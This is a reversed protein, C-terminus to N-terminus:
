MTKSKKLRSLAKRAAEPTMGTLRAIEAGSTVGSYFLEKVKDASSSTPEPFEIEPTKGEVVDDFDVDSPEISTYYPVTQEFGDDLTVTKVDLHCAFSGAGKPLYNGKVVGLYRMDRVKDYVFGIGARVADLYSHAGSFLSRASGGGKNFHHVILCATGTSQAIKIFSDMMGRVQTPNNGSEIGSFSTIPDIVMLAPKVQQIVSHLKKAEKPFKPIVPSGANGGWFLTHIRSMDAGAAKFRPQQETEWADESTLYLVNRPDGHLDGPLTGRTVQAAVHTAFLSKGEGGAGGLLTPAEALLVNEWLWTRRRSTISDASVIVWEDESTPSPNQSHNDNESDEAPTPVPPASESTGYLPSLQSTTRRVLYAYETYPFGSNDLYEKMGMKELEEHVQEVTRGEGRNFALSAVVRNLTENRGEVECDAKWTIVPSPRRGDDRPSISHEAYAEQRIREVEQTYWDAFVKASGAEPLSPKKIWKYKEFSGTIKSPKETPATYVLGGKGRLDIGLQKCVPNGLGMPAVFLHLGGSPTSAIGHIPPLVGLEKLRNFTVKASEGSNKPDIDIVDFVTGTMAVVGDGPRFNLLVDPDNVRGEGLPHDFMIGCDSPCSKRCKHAPALAMPMGLEQLAPTPNFEFM